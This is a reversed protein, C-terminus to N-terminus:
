PAPPALPGGVADKATIWRGGSVGARFAAASLPFDQLQSNSDAAAINFYLQGKVQPHAAFWQLMDATWSPRDQGLVGWEGIMFPKSSPGAAGSYRAYLENPGGPAGARAAVHGADNTGFPYWDIGAWDVYDDGPWYANVDDPPFTSSGPTWVWAVNPTPPIVTNPATLGPLGAAALAANVQGRTGGRFLIVARRWSARFEAHSNGAKAAGDEDFVGWAFFDHNMEWHLRLFVPKGFARVEGARDLLYGDIDGRAISAHNAGAQTPSYENPAQFFAWSIMPTLGKAGAEDLLVRFGSPDGRRNFRNHIAISPQQSVALFADLNEDVGRTSVGSLIRGDAPEYQEPVRTTFVWAREAPLANGALDTVGTTVTARYATGPELPEDPDLVASRGDASLGVSAAVDPGGAVPALRFTSPTVSAPDMVESFAAVIDSGQPVRPAGPVPSRDIMVPATTDAGADARASAPPGAGAPPTSSTSTTLLIRDLHFGDERMWVHFTHDGASAVTVAAPGPGNLTGGFWVWSGLTNTSLSDSADQLVHDLGTHLSNGAGDPAYGRVWVRYTGPAPFRVVYSLEAATSPVDAGSGSGDDPAVELADGVFGPPSQGAVWEDGARPIRQDFDEAEIVAQGASFLV